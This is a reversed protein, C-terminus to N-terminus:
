APTARVNSPTAAAGLSPTTSPILIYGFGAAYSGILSVMVLVSLFMGRRGVFRHMAMPTSQDAQKLATRVFPSLKQPIRWSEVTAQYKNHLEARRLAEEDSEDQPVDDTSKNSRTIAMGHSSAFPTTMHKAIDAWGGGNARKKKKAPKRPPTDVVQPV